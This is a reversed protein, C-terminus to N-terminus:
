RSCHGHRCREAITTVQYGTPADKYYKELIRHTEMKRAGNTARSTISLYPYAIDPENAPDYLNQDFVMQLKDVFKERRGDVGCTWTHRLTRLIHLEM